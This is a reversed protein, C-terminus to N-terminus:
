LIDSLKDMADFGTVRGVVPHVRLNFNIDPYIFKVKSNQDTHNRANRFLSYKKCDFRIWNYRRQSKTYRKM